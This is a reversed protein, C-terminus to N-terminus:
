KDLEAAMRRLEIAVSQEDGFPVEIEMIIGGEHASLSLESKECEKPWEFGSSLREVVELINTSKSSVISRKRFSSRTTLTTGIPLVCMAKSIKM